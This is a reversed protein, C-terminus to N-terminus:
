GFHRVFVLAVPEAYLTALSVKEGTSLLIDTDPARM